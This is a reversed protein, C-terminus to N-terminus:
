DSASHAAPACASANSRPASSAPTSDASRSGRVTSCSATTVPRLASHNAATPRASSAWPHARPSTPPRHRASAAAIATQRRRVPDRDGSPQRQRRQRAVPARRKGSHRGDHGIERLSPSAAGIVELHAAADAVGQRGSRYLALMLRAHLRERLPQTPAARELEAM